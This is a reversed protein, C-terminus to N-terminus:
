QKTATKEEVEIFLWFMWGYMYNNAYKNCFFPTEWLLIVSKVVLRSSISPASSIQRVTDFIVQQYFMSDQVFLKYM